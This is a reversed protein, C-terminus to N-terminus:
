SYLLNLLLFKFGYLKFGLDVEAQLEEEREGELIVFENNKLQDALTNCQKLM